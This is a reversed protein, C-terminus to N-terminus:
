YKVLYIASHNDCYIWVEGQKLGPKRVPKKLWLAEKAAKAVAMYEIKTSSM